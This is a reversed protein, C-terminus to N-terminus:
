LLLPCYIYKKADEMLGEQQGVDKFSWVVLRCCARQLLNLIEASTVGWSMMVTIKNVYQVEM